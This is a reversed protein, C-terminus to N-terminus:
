WNKNLDTSKQLLKLIVSFKISDTFLFCSNISDKLINLGKLKEQILSYNNVFFQVFDRQAHPNLDSSFEYGLIYSTFLNYKQTM